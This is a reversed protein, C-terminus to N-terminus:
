FIASEWSRRIKTSKYNSDRFRSLNLRKFPVLAVNRVTAMLTQWKLGADQPATPFIVTQHIVVGALYLAQLFPPCINVSVGVSWTYSINLSNHVANANQRLKNQKLVSRNGWIRWPKKVQVIMCYVLNVFGLFCSNWIGCHAMRFLSTCIRSQISCQPIHFLHMRPATEILFVTKSPIAIGMNFILRGVPRRIKLM